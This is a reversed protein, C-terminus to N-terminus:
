QIYYAGSSSPIRLYVHNRIDHGDTRLIEDEIAKFINDDNENKNKYYVSFKRYCNICMDIYGANEIDYYVEPGRCNLCMFRSNDYPVRCLNCEYNNKFLNNKLYDKFLNNGLKLYSIDM